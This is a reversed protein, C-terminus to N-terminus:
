EEEQLEEVREATMRIACTLEGVDPHNRGRPSRWGAIASRRSTSPGSRTAPTSRRSPPSRTWPSRPGTARRRWAKALAAEEKKLAASLCDSLKGWEGPQFGDQCVDVADKTRKAARAGPLSEGLAWCCGTVFFLTLISRRPFRM